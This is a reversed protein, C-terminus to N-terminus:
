VVVAWVHALMDIQPQLLGDIRIVTIPWDAPDWVAGCNYQLPTGNVKQQYTTVAGDASQIGIAWHDWSYWHNTKMLITYVASGDDPLVTHGNVTATLKLLAMRCRGQAAANGGLANAFDATLV